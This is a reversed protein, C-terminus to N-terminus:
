PGTSAPSRENSSPFSGCPPCSGTRVHDRCWAVALSRSSRQSSTPTRAARKRSVRQRPPAVRCHIAGLHDMSTPDDFLAVRTSCAHPAKPRQARRCCWKARIFCSRRHSRVAYSALSPPRKATSRSTAALARRPGRGAERKEAGEIVTARVSALPRATGSWRATNRPASARARAFSTSPGRPHEDQRSRKDGSLVTFRSLTTSLKAREVNRFRRLALSEIRLAPWSRKATSGLDAHADRRGKYSQDDSEGAPKIVAPDLDGESASFSRRTTSPVSCTSSFVKANFGIVVEPGSYDSVSKTSVM